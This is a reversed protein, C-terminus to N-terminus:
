FSKFHHRYYRYTFLSVFLLTSMFLAINLCRGKKQKVSLSNSELIGNIDHETHESDILKGILNTKLIESARSGHQIVEYFDKTADSGAVELLVEIGGPHSVPFNSINYVKNNVIIWLDDETRHESVQKRNYLPLLRGFSM